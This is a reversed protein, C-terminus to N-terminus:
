ISCCVWRGSQKQAHESNYSFSLVLGLRGAALALIKGLSAVAMMWCTTSSKNGLAAQPRYSVAFPCIPSTSVRKLDATKNMILRSSPLSDLALIMGMTMSASTVFFRKLHTEWSHGTARCFPQRCALASAAFLRSLPTEWSHGM